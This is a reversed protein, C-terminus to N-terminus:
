VSGELGRGISTAVVVPDASHLISRCGGWWSHARFVIPALVDRAIGRRSMVISAEVRAAALYSILGDVPLAPPSTRDMALLAHSSCLLVAQYWGLRCTKSLTTDPSSSSPQQAVDYSRSFTRSCTSSCTQSLCVAVAKSLRTRLVNVACYSRTLRENYTALSGHICCFRICDIAAPARFSLATCTGGRV